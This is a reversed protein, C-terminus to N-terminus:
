ELHLGPRLSLLEELFEVRVRLRGVEEELTKLRAIGENPLGELDLM